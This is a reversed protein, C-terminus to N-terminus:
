AFGTPIPVCEIERAPARATAYLAEIASTTAGRKRAAQEYMAIVSHTEQRYIQWRLNRLASVVSQADEDAETVWDLTGCDEEKM